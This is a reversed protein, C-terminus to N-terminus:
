AVSDDNLKRIDRLQFEHGTTNNLPTRSDYSRKTLQPILSLIDGLTGRKAPDICLCKKLIERKKRSFETDEISKRFSFTSSAIRELIEDEEEISKFEILNRDPSILQLVLVAASWVDLATSAKLPTAESSSKHDFYFRAMEPPCYERTFHPAEIDKGILEMCEFDILKFQDNFFVFNDVKIDGHIYGLKHLAQISKIMQELYVLRQSISSKFLKDTRKTSDEGREMVVAYSKFNHFQVEGWKECKVLHQLAHAADQTGLKHICEMFDLEKKDILKVVLKDNCRKTNEVRFICHNAKAIKECLKFDTFITWSQQKECLYNEIEQIPAHLGLVVLLVKCMRPDNMYEPLEDVNNRVNRLMQHFESNGLFLVTDPNRALDPMFESKLLCIIEGQSATRLLSLAVDLESDSADFAVAVRKRKSLEVHKIALKCKLKTDSSELGKTLVKLADDFRNMRHLLDGMTFYVSTEGLDISARADKWASETNGVCIYAVARLMLDTADQCGTQPVFRDLTNIAEDIENATLCNVVSSRMQVVAEDLYVAIESHGIKNVIDRVTNGDGDTFTLGAGAKVLARVINVFGEESAVMLPTIGRIESQNVNAGSAILREVIDLRGRLSAIYLPTEEDYKNAQDISAGKLLLFEVVELHGYMSARHLPTNGDNDAQEISSEKSQLFEVVSLHGNSSAGHLPTRGNWDQCNILTADEAILEKITALDGVEAAKLMKVEDFYFSMKIARFANPLIM